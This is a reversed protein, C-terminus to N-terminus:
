SIHKKASFGRKLRVEIMTQYVVLFDFVIKANAGSFRYDLICYFGSFM